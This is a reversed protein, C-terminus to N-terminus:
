GHLHKIYAPLHQGCNQFKVYVLHANAQGGFVRVKEVIAKVVESDQPYDPLSGLEIEMEVGVPPAFSTVLEAHREDLVRVVGTVDQGSFAMKVRMFLNRVAFARSRMVRTSFIGILFIMSLVTFILPFSIGHADGSISLLSQLSYQEEM